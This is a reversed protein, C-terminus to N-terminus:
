FSGRLTSCYGDGDKSKAVDRWIDVIHSTHQLHGDTEKWSAM